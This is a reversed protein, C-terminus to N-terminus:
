VLILKQPPPEEREWPIYVKGAERKVFLIGAGRKMAKLIENLHM